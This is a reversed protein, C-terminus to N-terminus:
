ARAVPGRKNRPQILWGVEVLAPGFAPKSVEAESVSPGTQPRRFVDKVWVKVESSPKLWLHPSKNALWTSLANCRDVSFSVCSHNTDLKPLRAGVIGLRIAFFPISIRRTTRRIVSAGRILVLQFIGARMVCVDLLLGSLMSGVLDAVM